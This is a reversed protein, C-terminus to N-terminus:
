ELESLLSTVLVRYRETMDLLAVLDTGRQQTEFMWLLGLVNLHENGSLVSQLRQWSTLFKSKAQQRPNRVLLL